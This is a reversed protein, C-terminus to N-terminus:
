GTEPQVVARVWLEFDRQIKDWHESTLGAPLPGGADGFYVLSRVVHGIDEVPYALKALASRQGATITDRETMRGM